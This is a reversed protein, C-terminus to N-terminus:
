AADTFSAVSKNATAVDFGQQAPSATVKVVWNVVEEVVVGGRVGVEDEEVGATVTVTLLFVLPSISPSELNKVGEGTPRLDDRAPSIKSGEARFPDCDQQGALFFGTGGGSSHFSLGDGDTTTPMAAFSVVVVRDGQVSGREGVGVNGPCPEVM